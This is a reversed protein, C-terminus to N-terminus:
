NCAPFQSGNPGGLPDCDMSCCDGNAVCGFGAARCAQCTGGACTGSVCQANQSCAAGTQLLPLPSPCGACPANVSFCLHNSPPAASCDDECPIFGRAKLIPDMFCRGCIITALSADPNDYCFPYADVESQVPPDQLPVGQNLRTAWAMLKSQESTPDPSGPGQTTADFDGRSLYLRRAMPYFATRINNPSPTRMNINVARAGAQLSAELGAYGLTHRGSDAVVRRAISAGVTTTGADAQSLAVVFGLTSDSSRCPTPAFGAISVCPGRLPDNDANNTNLPGRSTNPAVAGNNCFNTVGLFDKVSDSTGSNDDRRYFHSLVLNASNYCNALATLADLRAGHVCAAASGTGDVGAVAYRFWHQGTTDGLGFPIQGEPDSSCAGAGSREVMLVADLGLIQERRPAWTPHVTLVATALNRSMPAIAQKPQGPLTGQLAKEGNGSGTGQYVLNFGAAVIADSIPDVLSDSGFFNPLAGVAAGAGAMVTFTGAAIALTNGKAKAKAGERRRM